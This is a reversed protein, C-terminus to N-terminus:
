AREHRLSVVTEAAKGEGMAFREDFRDNGDPAIEWALFGLRPDARTFRWGFPQSAGQFRQEPGDAARVYARVRGREELIVVRERHDAAGERMTTHDLVIAGDDRLTGVIRATVADGRVSGAGRWTGVLFRLNEIGM